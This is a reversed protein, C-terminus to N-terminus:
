GGAGDLMRRGAFLARAPLQFLLAAVQASSGGWRNDDFAIDTHTTADLFGGPADVGFDTWMLEDRTRAGERSEDLGFRPESPNESLAFWWTEGARRV